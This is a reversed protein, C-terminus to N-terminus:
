QWLAIKVFTKLKFNFRACAPHAQANIHRASANYQYAGCTAGLGQNSAKQGVFTRPDLFLQNVHGLSCGKGM